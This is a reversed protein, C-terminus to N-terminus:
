VWEGLMQVQHVPIGQGQETKEQGVSAADDDDSGDASGMTYRSANKGSWTDFTVFDAVFDPLAPCDDGWHTSRGCNYCSVVIVGDAVRRHRDSQAPNFTMWIGSCEEEAHGLEGCVDCEDGMKGAQKSSRSCEHDRHGRQRCRKCKQHSPCARAFHSKSSCHKCTQAPCCYHMHGRDGCSLCRVLSAANSPGFYLTQENVEEESLDAIRFDNHPTNMDDVDVDVDIDANTADPKNESVSDRSEAPLLNKNLYDKIVRASKVHTKHYKLLDFAVSARPRWPAKECETQLAAGFNRKTHKSTKGSELELPSRFASKDELLRRLDHYGYDGLNASYGAKWDEAFERAYKCYPKNKEKSANLVAEVSDFEGRQLQDKVFGQFSDPYIADVDIGARSTSNGLANNSPNEDVQQPLPMDHQPTIEPNGVVGPNSAVSHADSVEGSERDESVTESNDDSDLAVYSANEDLKRRKEADHASQVVDQNQRRKRGLSAARSDETDSM